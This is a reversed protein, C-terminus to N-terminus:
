NVSRYRPYADIGLIVIAIADPQGPDGTRDFPTVRSSWPVWTHEAPTVVPRPDLSFCTRIEAHMVRYLPALIWLLFHRTHFQLALLLKTSLDTFLM